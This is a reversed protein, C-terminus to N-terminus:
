LVWGQSQALTIVLANVMILAYVFVFGVVALFISAASIKILSAENRAKLNNILALLVLIAVFLISIVGFVAQTATILVAGIVLLKFLDSYTADWELRSRIVWDMLWPIITVSPIIVALRFLIESILRLSSYYFLGGLVSLIIFAPVAALLLNQLKPKRFKIENFHTLIIECSHLFGTSNQLDATLAAEPKANISADKVQKNWVLGKLKNFTELNLYGANVNAVRKLKSFTEDLSTSEGVQKKLFKFNLATESDAEHRFKKEALNATIQLQKLKEDLEVKSYGKDQLVEKVSEPSYGSALKMRMFDVVKQSLM